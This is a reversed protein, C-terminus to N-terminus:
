DENWVKHFTRYATEMKTSLGHPKEPIWFLGSPARNAAINLKLFNLTLVRLLKSEDGQNLLYGLTISNIEHEVAKAITQWALANLKFGKM